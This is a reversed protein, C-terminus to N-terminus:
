DVMRGFNQRIYAIDQAIKARAEEGQPSPLNLAALDAEVMLNVLEAFTVSPKWGLQKEAKSPDGILLDVEAPRLYRPDFAVYDEWKLNVYNFALELFEKISHTEGTAVVYDDPKEQQLMLWM